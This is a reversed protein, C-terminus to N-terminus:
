HKTGFNLAADVSLWYTSLGRDTFRSQDKLYLGGEQENWVKKLQLCAMEPYKQVLSELVRAFRTRQENNYFYKHVPPAIWLIHPIYERKAKTPLKEKYAVVDRHFQELLYQM